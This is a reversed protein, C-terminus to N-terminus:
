TPLPRDPRFRALAPEPTGHIEGHVLDALHPALTIGSHTVATYLGPRQYGILPYGDVPLPRVCRGIDRIRVSLGPILARARALLETAHGGSPTPSDEAAADLDAAELVLGGGPAPRTVLDPSHVVGRVTGPAPTTTAINCPAASGPAVPDVLPLGAGATALLAPSRWGAACVTVDADVDEGTDLRVGTVRDGRLNLGAVATGTVLRAGAGRARDALAAAALAGHVYGEDPYHAIVADGSARVFPELDRLRDPTILEAAYGLGRLRAVRDTLLARGQESVAWVTNGAARYWSPDAFEEALRRWARLADVRLAQYDPDGPDNANLWALSSGTTGSGVRREEVVTVDASRALRDALAAGVIGAGIVIVRM